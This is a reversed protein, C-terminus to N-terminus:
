DYYYVKIIYINSYAGNMSLNLKVSTSNIDNITIVSGSGVTSPFVVNGKNSILYQGNTSALWNGLKVELKEINKGTLATVIVNSDSAIYMGNNVKLHFQLKFDTLSYKIPLSESSPIVSADFTEVKLEKKVIMYRPRSEYPSEIVDTPNASSGGYVIMGSGVTLTGNSGKYGGGIGHDSSSGGTATVNGGNITVIGGDANCGGGIGAGYRGSTATVTGSNITINGSAGWGGGIGAGLDDSSANVTGGNIIVTGSKSDGGGIGAGNSFSTAKVNGGNITISGSGKNGGGIGAGWSSTATVTGGNITINGSDGRMAGGIGAGSFSGTATINGGNITINGGSQSRASSGIAAYEDGSSTAQLIGQNSDESQSYINLTNGSSVGVGSSAKLTAGNALILNVTGSVTIRDSVTVDETVAYWGDSMTTTSSTVENVEKAKKSKTDYTSTSVNYERYSYEKEKVVMYRPRSEYPSAIVTTPNASTGGFVTLGNAVTLTGESSGSVGKGIGSASQGDYTGGNATVTGGYIKVTGGAGKYGGGIGAARNGGTATVTGSYININGGAGSWGGGIGSGSGDTNAATVTGGYININGGAGADGGGIGAGFGSTNATVTGGYININGGAGGNGGGIGAANRGGTAVVTGGYINITNNNQVTSGSKSGGGIASCGQKNSVATIEGGYINIIGPTGGPGSNGGIAAGGLDNSQAILKGTGNEQCYINLIGSNRVMICNNANLTAGDSLIINVTAGLRGNSIIMRDAYTVDGEVVYWGDDLMHMGTKSTLPTATHQKTVFKETTADYDRYSYLREWQAYLTIGETQMTYSTSNEYSTGTGDPKTNWCKFAHDIKTFTNENLNASSGFTFTQNAMNGKGGNADFM